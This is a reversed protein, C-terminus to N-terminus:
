LSIIPQLKFSAPLSPPPACSLPILSQIFPPIEPNHCIFLFPLCLRFSDLRQPSYTSFSPSSSPPPPFSSFSLTLTLFLSTVHHTYIHLSSLSSSPPPSFIFLCSTVLVFIMFIDRGVHFTRVLLLHPCHLLSFLLHYFWFFTPCCFFPAIFNYLTPVFHVFLSPLLLCFNNPFRSFSCFFSAPFHPSFFYFIPVIFSCYLWMSFFRLIHLFHSLFPFSLFM